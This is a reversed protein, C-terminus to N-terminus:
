GSHSKAPATAQLEPETFCRVAFDRDREMLRKLYGSNCAVAGAFDRLPQHDSFLKALPECDGILDAVLDPPSDASLLPPSSFEFTALTEAM